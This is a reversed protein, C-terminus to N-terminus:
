ESAAFEVESGTGAKQSPICTQIKLSIRSDPPLMANVMCIVIVSRLLVACSVVILDALKIFPGHSLLGNKSTKYTETPYMPKAMTVVTM